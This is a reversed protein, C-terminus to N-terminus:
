RTCLYSERASMDSHSVQVQKLTEVQQMFDEGKPWALGCDGVGTKLPNPM